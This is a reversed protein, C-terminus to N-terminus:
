WLVLGLFDGADLVGFTLKRVRPRPMAICQLVIWDVRFTEMIYHM